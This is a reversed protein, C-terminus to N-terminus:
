FINIKLATGYVHIECFGNQAVVSDFKVGVVANAGLKRAQETMIDIAENRVKDFTENLGKNEASAGIKFFGKVKSKSIKKMVSYGSVIGFHQEVDANPVNELTSIKIDESM